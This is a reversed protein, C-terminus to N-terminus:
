PWHLSVLQTYEDCNELSLVLPVYALSGSSLTGEEKRVGELALVGEPALSMLPTDGSFDEPPHHLCAQFFVSLHVVDYYWLPQTFEQDAVQRELATSCVCWLSVAHEPVLHL